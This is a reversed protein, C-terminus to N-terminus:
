EGHCAAALISNSHLLSRSSPLMFIDKSQAADSFLNVLKDGGSVAAALIQFKIWKLLKYM